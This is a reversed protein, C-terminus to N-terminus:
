VYSRTPSITCIINLFAGYQKLRVSMDLMSIYTKVEDHDLRERIEINAADFGKYIYKYLYKVSKVSMCAELNIHANYKKSLWANYPVIWRNDLDVNKVSVTRGNDRRRYKPYGNDSAVTNQCFQKPFKKSCSGDVMCPSSQNLHGCPGHVM